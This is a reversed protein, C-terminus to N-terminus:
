DGPYTLTLTEGPSLLRYEAILEGIRRRVRVLEADSFARPPEIGSQACCAAIAADFDSPTAVQGSITELALLSVVHETAISEPPPKGRAGKGSTEEIEWGATILGYFGRDLGLETEVAFHVLDHLPFYAAQADGKKQWTSTGDDRVCRLLASGDKAKTFEIRM